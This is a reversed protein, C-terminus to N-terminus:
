GGEGLVSQISVLFDWYLAFSPFCIMRLFSYTTELQFHIVDGGDGRQSLHSWVSWKRCWMLLLRSPLCSVTWLNLLISYLGLMEFLVFLLM